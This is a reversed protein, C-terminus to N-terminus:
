LFPCLLIKEIKSWDKKTCEIQKKSSSDISPSSLEYEIHEGGSRDKIQFPGNIYDMTGEGTGEEFTSYQNQNQNRNDFSLFVNYGSMDFLWMAEFKKITEQDFSVDHYNLLSETKEVDSMEASAVDENLFGNLDFGYTTKNESTERTIIPQDSNKLGYGMSGVSSLSGEDCSYNIIVEDFFLIDDKKSSITSILEVLRGNKTNDSLCFEGKIVPFTKVDYFQVLGAIASSIGLFALTSKILFSGKSKKM